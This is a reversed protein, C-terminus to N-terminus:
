LNSVLSFCVMIFFIIFVAVFFAINVNRLSPSYKNGNRCESVFHQCNAFFLYYEEKGIRSIAMQVIEHTPKPKFKKDYKENCKKFEDGNAIKLLFEGRVAERTKHIVIMRQPDILIGDHYYKTRDFGVADTQNLDEIQVLSNKLRNLSLKCINLGQLDFELGNMQSTTVDNNFERLAEETISRNEFYNSFCGFREQQLGKGKEYLTFVNRHGLYVALQWGNNTVSAKIGILDGIQVGGMEFMRCLQELSMPHSPYMDSGIPEEFGSGIPEEFGQLRYYDKTEV